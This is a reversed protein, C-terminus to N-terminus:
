DNNISGTKLFATYKRTILQPRTIAGGIVIAYAGEMICRKAQEPTEIRGEAILPIKIAKSAKRILEFDPESIQPSYDTYGSLTTSVLDVGYEQANVAEEFTSIDAMVLIDAYSKKILRIFDEANLNDPRIRKTADVAIIDAGANVLQKIEDMSPTIYPEYGIYEKKIIGIVPLSTSRKIAIVDEVGNARIGVAGGMEAAVAMRAMIESGHLPEGELAQCSVILGNKFRSIISHKEM